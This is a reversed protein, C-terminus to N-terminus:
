GESRTRLQRTVDAIPVAMLGLAILFGPWNFRDPLVGRVALPGRPAAAIADQMFVLLALLIGAGNLAWARRSPWAPRQRHDGQSVLSGGLVMLLAISAPALVPGWWPLPLLFLIDWDLLSRPWPGMMALFLYYGLDWVGFAVMWYGFRARATRGALCGAVVLMVM